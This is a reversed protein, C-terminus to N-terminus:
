QRPSIGNMCWEGDTVGLLLDVPLNETKGQASLTLDVPVQAQTDMLLRPPGTQTASQILGLAEPPLQATPTGDPGHCSVEDLKEPDKGALAAISEAAKAEPEGPGALFGPWVLAALLLAVALVAVAGAGLGLLLGKRSQKPRAVPVDQIRTDEAETLPAATSPDQQAAGEDAQEQSRPRVRDPGSGQETPPQEPQHPDTM